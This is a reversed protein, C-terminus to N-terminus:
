VVAPVGALRAALRGYFSARAGATHVLDPRARRFHRVLAWLAGPAVLRPLPVITVPFGRRRLEAAFRGEETVVFASAYRARDLGEALALMWKEGGGIDAASNLYVVRAVDARAAGASARWSPSSPSSARPRCSSCRPRARP